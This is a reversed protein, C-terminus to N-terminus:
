TIMKDLVPLALVSLALAGARWRQKAGPLATPALM